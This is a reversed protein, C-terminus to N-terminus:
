PRAESALSKIYAVLKLVDEESVQGAFSPMIPPYGAVRRKEPLLICDRIYSEDATVITGDELPVPGGYLGTLPPAQAASAAQAGGIGNGGHCGSCGYRMFLIGGQKAMSESASNQELWQEYEPLEMAVVEGTMKAHDAGCFQTCFLRYVGAIKVQFWLTEYRGPLVDHKIRFAPVSFDHIVDESTMLLQIPQGIPVHLANIERQGGHHEIKWMWQKAIVYIKLANPPPQFLRVYLDAGWIFLGFFVLLTVSTWTVELRWSKESSGYRAVKSGARYRIAYLIISGFVLALIACSGVVLAFILYDVEAAQTTPHSLWFRM